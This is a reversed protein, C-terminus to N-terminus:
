IQKSLMSPAFGYEQRFCKAFYSPSSFGCQMASHTVGQGDIIMKKAKELRHAKLLDSFGLGYHEVLRRSLTKESMFLGNAADLRSFTENQYQKEVLQYFLQKFSRVDAESLMSLTKERAVHYSALEKEVRRKVIASNAISLDILKSLYPTTIPKEIVQWSASVSERECAIDILEIIPTNSSLTHLYQWNNLIDPDRVSNCTDIILCDIEGEPFNSLLASLNSVVNICYYQSLYQQAQSAFECSSKVMYVRAKRTSMHSMVESHELPRESVHLQEPKLQTSEFLPLCVLVQTHLHRASKITLSGNNRRVYQEIYLLNIPKNKDEFRRYLDLKGSQSHNIRNTVSHPFGIGNDEVSVCLKNQVQSIRVILDFGRANHKLANLVLENVAFKLFDNEVYINDECVLEYNLHVKRERCLETLADFQHKMLSRVNYYKGHPKVDSYTTEVSYVSGLQGNSANELYQSVVRLQNLSDRLPTQMVSKYQQKDTLVYQSNIINKIVQKIQHALLALPLEQVISIESAKNNSNLKNRSTQSSFYKSLYMGFFTGLLALCIASGITLFSSSQYFPLYLM